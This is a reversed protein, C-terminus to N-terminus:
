ENGHPQHEPAASLTGLTVREVLRAVREELEAVRERLADRESELEAVRESLTHADYAVCEAFGFPGGLAAIKEARKRRDEHSTYLKM